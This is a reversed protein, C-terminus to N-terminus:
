NNWFVATIQEDMIFQKLLTAGHMAVQEEDIWQCLRECIESFSKGALMADLMDNEDISLSRFHVDHQKRWIFCHTKKSSKKAQLLKEEKVANWLAMSNWRLVLKRLSPHLQFRMGPWNEFPIAAMQEVTLLTSDCADFAETLLWEFEAMEILWGQQSYASTQQIFAAFEKGFWRISRFQSPHTQIYHLALKNFAEEGMLAYIVAYDQKLSDLLRLHYAERYIDLRTLSSLKGEIIDNQIHSNKHLLYNQFETQLENLSRM